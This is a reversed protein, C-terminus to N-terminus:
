ILACANTWTNQLIQCHSLCRIPTFSHFCPSLSFIRFYHHSLSFWGGDDQARPPWGVYNPLGRSKCAGAFYPCARFDRQDSAHSFQEGNEIRHDFMCSTPRFNHRLGRSKWSLQEHRNSTAKRKAGIKCKWTELLRSVHFNRSWAKSGYRSSRFTTTSDKSPSWPLNKFKRRSRVSQVSRLSQIIPVCRQPLEPTV